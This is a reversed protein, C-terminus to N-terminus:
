IGGFVEQCSATLIAPKRQGQCQYLQTQVVRRLAQSHLSARYHLCSCYINQCIDVLVVDADIFQAFQASCGALPDLFEYCGLANGWMGVLQIKLSGNCTREAFILEIVFWHTEIVARECVPDM